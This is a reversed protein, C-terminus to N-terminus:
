DADVDEEDGTEGTGTLFYIMDCDVSQAVAVVDEGTTWLCCSM